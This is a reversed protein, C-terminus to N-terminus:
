LIVFIVDSRRLVQERKRRIVKAQKQNYVLIDAAWSRTKKADSKTPSGFACGLTPIEDLVVDFQMELSETQVVDELFAEPPVVDELFAEPPVVDELSAEPPVVDDIQVEVDETEVVEAVEHSPDDEVELDACNLLIPVSRKKRRCGIRAKKTPWCTRVVLPEVDCSARKRRAYFKKKDTWVTKTEFEHRTAYARLCMRMEDMSPFMRGVEIVPNEKDYLNILEDDHADDVDDVVNQMLEPDIDQYSSPRNDVNPAENTEKEKEEDREDVPIGFLKAMEIDSMPAIVLDTRANIEVINCDVSVIKEAANDRAESDADDEDILMTSETVIPIVQRQAVWDDEVMQLAMKSPVYGVRSDCKLDVLEAHFTARKTSWGDQRDIGDVMDDGDEIRIYEGKWDDFRSLSVEQEPGWVISERIKEVLNVMAQEKM